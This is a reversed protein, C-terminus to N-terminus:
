TTKHEIVDLFNGNGEGEQKIYFVKTIVSVKSTIAKIYQQNTRNVKNILNMM